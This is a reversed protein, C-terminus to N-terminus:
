LRAWDLLAAFLVGSYVFGGVQSAPAHAYAKTLLLQGATASLGMLAIVVWLGPAPTTWSFPLFLASLTSGMLAFSLVIRFPPETETLERVGTQAVASLFGALLGFFAARGFVGSGPRLVVVIGVFGLGLPLLLRPPLPERLWVTEVVPIFLPLTYNLLVADALR